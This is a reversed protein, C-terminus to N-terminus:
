KRLSHPAAPEPPWAFSGPTTGQRDTSHNEGLPPLSYTVDSAHTQDTM